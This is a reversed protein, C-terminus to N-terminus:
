GRNRLECKATCENAFKPIPASSIKLRPKPGRRSLCPCPPWNHCAPHQCKSGRDGDRQRGKDHSEARQEGNNLGTSKARGRLVSRRGIHVRGTRLGEPTKVRLHGGYRRQYM